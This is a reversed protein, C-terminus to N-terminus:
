ISLLMDHELAFITVFLFSIMQNSSLSHVS